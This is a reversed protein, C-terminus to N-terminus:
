QEGGNDDGDDDQGDPATGDAAKAKKPHKEAAEACWRTADDVTAGRVCLARAIHRRWIQASRKTATDLGARTIGMYRLAEAGLKAARMVEAIQVETAGAGAPAPADERVAQADSRVPDVGHILRWAEVGGYTLRCDMPDDSLVEADILENVIELSSTDPRPGPEAGVGPWGHMYRAAASSLGAVVSAVHERDPKRALMTRGPRALFDPLKVAAFLDPQATAAPQPHLDFNGDRVVTTPLPDPATPRVDPEAHLALAEDLNALAEAPTEGQSAVDVTLSQAVHWSGDQSLAAYSQGDQSLVIDVDGQSLVIDIAEPSVAVHIDPHPLSAAVNAVAPDDTGTPPPAPPEPDDGTRVVTLGDIREPEHCTAILVTGVAGSWYAGLAGETLSTLARGSLADAELLMVRLKRSSELARDIATALATRQAGSLGAGAVFAGSPLRLGIEGDVLDIRGFEQPIFGDADEAIRRLGDMSLSEEVARVAALAAECEAKRATAAERRALDDRHRATRAASQQAGDMASQALELAARRAQVAQAADAVDRELDSASPPPSAEARALEARRTSLDSEADAISRDLSALREAAAAANAVAMKAIRVRERLARVQEADDAVQQDLTEAYATADRLVGAAADLDAKANAVDANCADLYSRREAVHGVFMDFVDPSVAQRCTPCHRGALTAQAAQADSLRTAAFKAGGTRDDLVMRANRLTWNANDVDVRALRLAETMEGLDAARWEIESELAAVDVPERLASAMADAERRQRLDALRQQSVDVERAMRAVSQRWEAHRAQAGRCASLKAAEDRVAEDLATQAENRTAELNRLRDPSVNGSDAAAKRSIEASEDAVRAAKKAENVKAAVLDRAEALWSIPDTTKATMNGAVGSVREAVLRVARRGDECDAGISGLTSILRDRSMTLWSEGGPAGVPGFAEVVDSEDVPVDDITVRPRSFAGTKPDVTRARALTRQRGDDDITLRVRCAGGAVAALLDPGNGAVGAVQRGLAFAVADLVRSKGSGNPGVFMTPGGIHLDLPEAGKLGEVEIRVIRM